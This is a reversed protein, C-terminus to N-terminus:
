IKDQKLPLISHPLEGETFPQMFAGRLEEFQSRSLWGFTFVQDPLDENQLGLFIQNFTEELEQRNVTEIAQAPASSVEFLSCFSGMLQCMYRKGDMNGQAHSEEARKLLRQYARAFPCYLMVRLLQTEPFFEEVQDATFYWSDLLVDKGRDLASQIKELM